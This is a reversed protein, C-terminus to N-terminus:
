WTEYGALRLLAWLAGTGLDHEDAMHGQIPDGKSTAVELPKTEGTPGEVVM